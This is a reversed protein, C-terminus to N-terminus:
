GGDSPEPTPTPEPTPRPVYTGDTESALVVREVLPERGILLSRLLRVQGPIIDTTRLSPTYFGFIARWEAPRGIVMFGNADTVTVDLRTGESGVDAPTLSALRTAADLDVPDLSDGVDLTTSPTRRDNVVPLDTAAEPPDEGVLAFLTGNAGVLFQEEGVRWILIPEPEDVRVVIADPLAIQLDASAVTPLDAIAAKMPGTKLAFLNSGIADDLAADVAAEDTFTAGEVRIQELRFASSNAVGYIAAAALLMVLLAGARVPRMGASRRRVPRIRREASLGAIPRRGPPPAPRTTPSRGSM